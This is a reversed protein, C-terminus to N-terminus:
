RLRLSRSMKGDEFDVKKSERLKTLHWAIAARKIGTADTMEAQTPMYRHKKYYSRLFALLEARVAEGAETRVGM